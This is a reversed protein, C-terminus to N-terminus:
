KKKEMGFMEYVNIDQLEFLAATQAAHILNCCFHRGIKVLLEKDFIRTEKSAKIYGGRPSKNKHPTIATLLRAVAWSPLRSGFLNSIATQYFGAQSMSMFRQLMFHEKISDDPPLTKKTYVCDLIYFLQDSKEQSKPKTVKEAVTKKKKAM